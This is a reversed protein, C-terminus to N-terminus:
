MLICKRQKKTLYNDMYLNISINTIIFNRIANGLSVGDVNDNIKIKFVVSKIFRNRSKSSIEDTKYLRSNDINYTACIGPTSTYRVRSNAEGANDLTIQTKYPIVEVDRYFKVKQFQILPKGNVHSILVDLEKKDTIYNDDNFIIDITLEHIAAANFSYYIDIDNHLLYTTTKSEILYLDSGIPLLKIQEM